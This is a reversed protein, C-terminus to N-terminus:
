KGTAAIMTSSCIIRDSFLPSEYLGIIYNDHEGTQRDVHWKLSTCVMKLGMFPACSAVM